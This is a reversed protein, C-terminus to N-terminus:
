GISHNDAEKSLQDQDLSEADREACIVLSILNAFRHVNAEMLQDLTPVGPASDAHVIRLTVTHKV